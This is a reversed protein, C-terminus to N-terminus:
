ERGLVKRAVNELYALALHQDGADNSCWGSDNWKDREALWPRLAKKLEGLQVLAKMSDELTRNRIAALIEEITLDSIEAM